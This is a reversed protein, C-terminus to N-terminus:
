FAANKLDSSKINEGTVVREPIRIETLIGKIQIPM